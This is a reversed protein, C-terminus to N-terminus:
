YDSSIPGDRFLSQLMWCYVLLCPVARDHSVKRLWGGTSPLICDHIEPLYGALFIFSCSSSFRLSSFAYSVIFGDHSGLLSSLFLGIGFAPHYRFPPGTARDTTLVYVVCGVARSLTGYDSPIGFVPDALVTAPGTPKRGM